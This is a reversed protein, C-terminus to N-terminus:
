RRLLWKTQNCQRVFFDIGNELGYRFEASGFDAGSRVGEEVFIIVREAYEIKRDPSGVKGVIEDILQYFRNEFVLRRQEFRMRRRRFGDRLVDELVGEQRKMGACKTIVALDADLNGVHQRRVRVSQDPACIARRHM